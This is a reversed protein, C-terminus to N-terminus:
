CCHTSCNQCHSFEGRLRKEVLNGLRDLLEPNNIKALAAYAFAQQQLLKAENYSIGRSRMYFLEDENLSGVPAGHSCKVDDAYIELHPQTYAKAFDSSLLNNNAQYAETKQADKAVLITGSFKTIAEDELIGKFLQNSHCEPVNHSINVKNSIHQKGNALYLGNLDCECGKGNLNVNITNTIEGGHLTVIHFRLLSNAALSIDFKANHISNNHENQMMVLDLVANEGIEVSINENTAFNDESLTHSCLLLKASSCSELEFRSSFDLPRTNASTRVSIIQLLESINKGKEVHLTYGREQQQISIEGINEQQMIGDAVFLQVTNNLPVRCRFGPNNNDPTYIYNTM